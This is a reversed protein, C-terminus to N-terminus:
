YWFLVPVAVTESRSVPSELSVVAKVRLLFFFEISKLIGTGTDEEVGAANM